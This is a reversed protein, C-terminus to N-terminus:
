MQKHKSLFSFNAYTAESTPMPVLYPLMTAYDIHGRARPRGEIVVTPQLGGRVNRLQPIGERTTVVKINITM